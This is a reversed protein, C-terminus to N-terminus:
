KQPAFNGDHLNLCPIHLDFYRQKLCRNRSRGCLIRAAIGFYREHVRIPPKKEPLVSLVLSGVPRYARSSGLELGSRDAKGYVHRRWCCCNKDAVMEVPPRSCSQLRWYAGRNASRCFSDHMRYLRLLVSLSRVVTTFVCLWLILTPLLYSSSPRPCSTAPQPRGEM